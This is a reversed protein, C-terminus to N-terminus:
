LQLEMFITGPLPTDYYAPIPVFGLAEYLRRAAGMSPLTDLKMSAYGIMRAEEVVREALMKGVGRGRFAPRVFLRKMECALEAVPRLAICGATEGKESALLLRGRPPSYVGPLVALEEGFGQFALDVGLWAAYEQFLTRAIAIENDTSAQRIQMGRPRVVILDAVAPSFM